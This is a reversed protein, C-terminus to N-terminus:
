STLQRVKELFIDTKIPKILCISVGQGLFLDEMDAKATIVIIPIKKLEDIRKIEQVFTYGDMQPMVIDLVILDPKQERAQTFGSVGDGATLVNYHQGELRNRLLAVVELDDDIVLITKPM